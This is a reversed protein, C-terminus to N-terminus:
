NFYPKALLYCPIVPLFWSKLCNTDFVIKLASSLSDVVVISVVSDQLTIKQFKQEEEIFNM